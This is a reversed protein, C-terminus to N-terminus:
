YCTTYRYTATPSNACDTSSDCSVHKHQGLSRTTCTQTSRPQCSSNTSGNVCTTQAGDCGATQSTANNCTNVSSQPASNGAPTNATTNDPAPYFTAAPSSSGSSQQYSINQSPHSTTAADNSNNAASGAQAIPLYLLVGGLIVAIAFGWALTGWWSFARRSKYPAARQPESRPAPQRQPSPYTARSSAPPTVRPSRRREADYLSREFQNSLVSYAQNLRAMAEQSGGM